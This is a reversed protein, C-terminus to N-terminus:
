PLIEADDLFRMALSSLALYEYARVPDDIKADATHSKENRLRDVSMTLFKVGDNFDGDVNPAAAGKIHLNTKGFAESGTEYNTLERLRDRVVKFSKEASEAFAGDLYLKHCKSYIKPHLNKLNDAMDTSNSEKQAGGLIFDPDSALEELLSQLYNDYFNIEDQFNRLPEGMIFSGLEKEKLVRGEEESISSSIEAVARKKWRTLREEGLGFDRSSSVGEWIQLLGKQLENLKEAIDKSM